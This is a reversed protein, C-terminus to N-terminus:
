TIHPSPRILALRIFSVVSVSFYFLLFLDKIQRVRRRSRNSCPDGVWMGFMYLLRLDVLASSSWGVLRGAYCTHLHILQPAVGFLRVSGNNHVVCSEEEQWELIVTM